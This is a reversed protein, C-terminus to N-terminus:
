LVGRFCPCREIFSLIENGLAHHGTGSYNNGLQGRVRVVADTSQVSITPELDLGGELVEGNFNLNVICTRTLVGVEGSTHNVTLTSTHEIDGGTNTSVTTNISITGNANLIEPLQPSNEFRPDLAVIAAWTFIVQLGTVDNPLSATCTITYVNFPPIDVITQTSPEITLSLPPVTPLSM